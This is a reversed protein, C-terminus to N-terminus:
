SRMLWRTTSRRGAWASSLERSRTPCCRRAARRTISAAIHNDIFMTAALVAPTEDATCYCYASCLKDFFNIVAEGKFYRNLLSRVSTSLLKQMRIMALPGTMLRRLGQRPSFQRLSSSRTRLVINEYM